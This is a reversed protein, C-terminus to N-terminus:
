LGALRRMGLNSITRGEGDVGQGVLPEGDSMALETLVRGLDKTPSIMSSYVTRIAGLLAPRGWKEIVGSSAPIFEHIETHNGPDVGAPRLSYPRFFKQTSPDKSLALLAAETRGKIVGFRATLMGPTTTAGESSVYVFKFPKPSNLTAFAKAAAIPYDYTIKFFEEKSVKAQSIGQAWVVGEAGKLQALIEDPYNTFDKQIIVKAKSHGEAQPVPSRSLISIQSIAPTQLMHHLVGSGVLGTAGTLILHM